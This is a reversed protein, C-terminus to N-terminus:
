VYGIVEMLKYLSRIHRKATFLGAKPPIFLLEHTYGGGVNGPGTNPQASGDYICRGLSHACRKLSWM